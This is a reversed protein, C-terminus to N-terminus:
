LEEFSVYEGKKEEESSVTNKQKKKNLITVEGEKKDSMQSSNYQNRFLGQVIFRRLLYRLGGWILLVIFLLKWM